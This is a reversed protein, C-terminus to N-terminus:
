SIEALHARLDARSIQGDVKAVLTGDADYFATVPQGISGLHTRIAGTPDFVSPYPIDYTEIFGVAPPRTDLIDVGLFQANEFEQAAETLHPAEAKCPECWSAWVNVVLPTGRLEELLREYGEVDMLPLATTTTPLSSAATALLAPSGTTEPASSGDGVCAVSVALSVLAVIALPSRSMTGM